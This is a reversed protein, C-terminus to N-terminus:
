VICYKGPFIRRLSCPEIWEVQHHPIQGIVTQTTMALDERKWSIVAIILIVISAM